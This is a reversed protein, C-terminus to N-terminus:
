VRDADKLTFPKGTGITVLESAARLFFKRTQKPEIYQHYVPNLEIHEVCLSCQGFRGAAAGRRKEIEGTVRFGYKPADHHSCEHRKQRISSHYV